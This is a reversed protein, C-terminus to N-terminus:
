TWKLKCNITCTPYITGWDWLICKKVDRERVRLGDLSVVAHSEPSSPASKRLLLVCVSENRISAWCLTQLCGAQMSLVVSGHLWGPVQSSQLRIGARLLSLWPTLGPIEPSKIRNPSVFSWSHLHCLREQGVRCQQATKMPFVRKRKMLSSIEKQLRHSNGKVRRSKAVRLLLKETVEESINDPLCLLFPVAGLHVCVFLTGRVCAIGVTSDPQQYHGTVGAAWLILYCTLEPAMFPTQKYTVSSPASYMCHLELWFLVKSMKTLGSVELTGELRWLKHSIMESKM